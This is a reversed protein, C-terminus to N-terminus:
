DDFQEKIRSSFVTEDCTWRCTDGLWHDYVVVSELLGDSNFEESEECLVYIHSGVDAVKIEYGSDEFARMRLEAPAVNAEFEVGDWVGGNLRVRM